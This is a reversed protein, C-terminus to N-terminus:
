PHQPLVRKNVTRACVAGDGCRGTDKNNPGPKTTDNDQLVWYDLVIDEVENGEVLGSRLVTRDTQWRTMCNGRSHSYLAKEALAIGRSTARRAVAIAGSTAQDEEEARRRNRIGRTDETGTEQPKRLRKQRKGKEAM